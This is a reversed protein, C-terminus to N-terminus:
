IDIEDLLQIYEDVHKSNRWLGIPGAIIGILVASVIIFIVFGIGSGSGSGTAGAATAGAATIAGIIVGDAM